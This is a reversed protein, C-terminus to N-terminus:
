AAGLKQSVQWAITNVLLLALFLAIVRLHAVINKRQVQMLLITPPPLVTPASSTYLDGYTRMQAWGRRLYVGVLLCQHVVLYLLWLPWLLFIGVGLAVQFWYFGDRTSDPIISTGEAASRALSGAVLYDAFGGPVELGLLRNVAEIPYRTISHYLDIAVQILKVWSVIDDALGGVGLVTM